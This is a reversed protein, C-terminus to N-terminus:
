RGSRKVSDQSAEASDSRRQNDRFTYAYEGLHKLEFTTDLMVKYGKKRLRCFFSFDEGINGFPEFPNIKDPLSNLVRNKILCFGLGAGEIEFYGGEPIYDVPELIAKKRYWTQPRVTKYAIPLADPNRGYYLGSVIDTNREVM